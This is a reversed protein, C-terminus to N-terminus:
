WSARPLRHLPPPPSLCIQDQWFFSHKQNNNGLAKTFLRTSQCVGWFICGASCQLWCPRELLAAAHTLPPLFFPHIDGDPLHHDPRVSRFDPKKLHTDHKGGLARKTRWHVRSYNSGHCVRTHVSAESLAVHGAHYRRRCCVAGKAIAVTSCMRHQVCPAANFV